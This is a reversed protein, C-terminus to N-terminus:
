FVPSYVFDLFAIIRINKQKRTRNINVFQNNSFWSLDRLIRYEYDDQLIDM